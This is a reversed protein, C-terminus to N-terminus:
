DNLDIMIYSNLINGEGSSFSVSKIKPNFILNLSDVFELMNCNNPDVNINFEILISKKSEYNKFSVLRKNLVIIQYMFIRHDCLALLLRKLGIKGSILNFDINWDDIVRHISLHSKLTTIEQEGMTNDNVNIKLDYDHQSNITIDM